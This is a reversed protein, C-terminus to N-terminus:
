ARSVFFAEKTGQHRQPEVGKKSKAVVEQALMVACEGVIQM